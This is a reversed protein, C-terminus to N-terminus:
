DKLHHIRHFNESYKRLAKDYHSEIIQLPIQRVKSMEDFSQEHIVHNKLVYLEIPRLTEFARWLSRILELELYIECPDRSYLTPLTLIYQQYAKEKRYFKANEAWIIRKIFGCVWSSFRSRGEFTNLKNFARCYAESVIDECSLADAQFNRIYKQTFGVTIQTSQSYLENWAQENGRLTDKVLM